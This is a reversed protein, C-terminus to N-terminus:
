KGNLLRRLCKQLRDERKKDVTGKEDKYAALNGIPKNDPDSESLERLRLLVKAPAFAAPAPKKPPRGGKSPDKMLGRPPDPGAAAAKWADIQGQQWDLLRIRPGNTGLGGARRAQTAVNSM